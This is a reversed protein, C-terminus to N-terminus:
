QHDDAEQAILNSEQESFAQRMFATSRAVRRKFSICQNVVIRMLWPRLAGAQRLDALHHWAQIFSDQVVDEAIDRDAVIMSATRLMLTNYQDVIEAFAEQSGQLARELLKAPDPQASKETTMEERAELGPQQADEAVTNLLKLGPQQTIMSVM